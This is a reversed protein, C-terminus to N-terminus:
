VAEELVLPVVIDRGARGSSFRLGQGEEDEDLEKLM